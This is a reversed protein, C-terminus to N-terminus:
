KNIVILKYSYVLLETRLNELVLSLISHMYIKVHKNIETAAISRLDVNCVINKMVVTFQQQCTM